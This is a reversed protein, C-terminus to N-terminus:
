SSMTEPWYGGSVRAGAMEAWNATIPSQLLPCVYGDVDIVFKYKTADEKRVLGMFDIERAM